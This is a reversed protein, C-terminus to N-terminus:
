LTVAIEAAESTANLAKRVAKADGITYYPIGLDDCAMKMAANNVPKSGAAIIVHDCPITEEAGAHEVRITGEAIETCRCDSILEIGYRKMKGMVPNKLFTNLEKGVESLMEIVKVSTVDRYEEAILEATELGVLGGGIIVVNGSLDAKKELVETFGHVNMKDAGPIRPTFPVAGNAFIVADPSIERIMEPTVATNLKVTVGQRILQEGRNVSADKMEHKDSIAGALLFQGGLKDTKEYIVPDHGRKKLISAAQMGGIGGGVIMIKKPNDTEKLSDYLAEKGVFPNQLCSIHPEYPDNIYNYCGQNCAVCRLIDETRGEATKNVFEPDVIQGRGIVVMDAKDASIIEEAVDPSNIRGVAIGKLGTEKRLYACNDANYGPKIYMCPVEYDLAPTFINGRSCDVADVGHEKAIKLFQAMMELTIGGPLYDDLVSVRIFLPMDEPMNARIADICELPYRMCNEFSGGYEDTRRNVAPSLFCHPAYTHAGHFELSDFGAEVCIRAANGFARVSAKIEEVTAAKVGMQPIDSPMLAGARPDQIKSVIGGEWMQVSSKGGAERIADTLKKLGPIFKDDFIGLFTSPATAPNVSAAEVINLGCGGKARAAHYNILTDTVFCESTHMKTDMAPLVVRNRLELGRIRIPSLMKEYSM